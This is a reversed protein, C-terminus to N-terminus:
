VFLEMYRRYTAFGEAEYFALADRNFEWMNLEVRSLNQERAYDRIFGMLARGAGKRRCAKDVCFEHITLYAEGFRKLSEPRNVQELIAFAVLRGEDEAVAINRSPDEWVDYIQDQLQQSFGPKFVQPNGEVHLDNVQKRLENIRTLESQDAWRVLM